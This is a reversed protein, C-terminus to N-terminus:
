PRTRAIGALSVDDIEFKQHARAGKDLGLASVTLPSLDLKGARIQRVPGGARCQKQDRRRAAARRGTLAAAATTALMSRRNLM